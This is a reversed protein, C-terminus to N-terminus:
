GKITHISHNTHLINSLMLLPPLETLYSVCFAPLHGYFFRDGSPLILCGRRRSWLFLASKFLRATQRLRWRPNDKNMYM